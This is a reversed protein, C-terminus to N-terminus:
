PGGRGAARQPGGRAGRGAAGGRVAHSGGGHAPRREDHTASGTSRHFQSLPRYFKEKIPVTVGNHRVDAVVGVVTVWPRAPNSGMRFRRGIADGEPWYTRAMTENVLGVQEGDATDAASFGRGRM